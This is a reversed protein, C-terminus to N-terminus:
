YIFTLWDNTILNNTGVGYIENFLVDKLSQLPMLVNPTYPANGDSTNWKFSDTKLTSPNSNKFSNSPDSSSGTYDISGISYRCNVLEYGGYSYPAPSGSDNNKLLTNIGLFICNEAKVSGGQGCVIGQSVLACKWGSNVKKVFNAAGATSLKTRYEYYRSSDFICNHMYINGGRVKPLRDELDTFNCNAFTVKLELNYDYEVHDDAKYDQDDGILFGKKQPIALGYLIDEFSVNNDRLAKYYLANTKGEQYDSELKSMMQYIYGDTDDSGAAFDCWTVSIGKGGTAGYPARFSTGKTSHYNANAYDIQGDYSKGFKCHDIWIYGCFGIKFYSWGFLDYDGIKSATNVIADEWQWIEDFFINRFVVNDCSTLKFGAHTIKAGNKSFILLESTREIKIQSIGNELFMDSFYLTDKLTSYKNAYDSVVQTLKKSESSLKYYGLNIDNTLEIVKVSGEKNLTQTYTNTNEDWVTEYDSKADFIAQIFDKENDVKKYYPTDIYKSFDGIGNAAYGQISLNLKEDSSLDSVFYEEQSTSSDDITSSDVVSSQSLSISESELSSSSSESILSSSDLISTSESKSSSSVEIKSSQEENSVSENPSSNNNDGCSSILCTLLIFFINKCKNM